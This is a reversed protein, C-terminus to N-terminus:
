VRDGDLAAQLQGWADYLSRRLEYLGENHQIARSDLLLDISRQVQAMRERPLRYRRANQTESNDSPSM